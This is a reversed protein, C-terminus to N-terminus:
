SSTKRPHSIKQMILQKQFNCCVKWGSLQFHGIAVCIGVHYGERLTSSSPSYPCAHHLMVGFSVTLGLSLTGMLSSAAKFVLDQHKYCSSVMYSGSVMEQVPRLLSSLAM